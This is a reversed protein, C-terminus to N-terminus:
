ADGDTDRGRKAESLEWGLRSRVERAAYNGRIAPREDLGARGRGQGRHPRHEAADEGTRDIVKRYLDKAADLEGLTSLVNALGDMAELHAPELDLALEYALRAAQMDPPELNELAWGRATHLRADAPLLDANRELLEIVAVHEGRESMQRVQTLIRELESASSS